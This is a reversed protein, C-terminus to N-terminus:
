NPSGLESIKRNSKLFVIWYSSNKQLEFFKKNQQPEVM